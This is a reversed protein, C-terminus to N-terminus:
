RKASPASANARSPSTRRCATPLSACRTRRAHSGCPIVQARLPEPLRAVQASLTPVSTGGVLLVAGVCSLGGVARNDCPAPEQPLAKLGSAKRESAVCRALGCAGLPKQPLAKLSPLEREAAVCRALRCAGPEKQPLAKLGSAKRESAARRGRGFAAFGIRRRRWACRGVRSQLRRCAYVAVARVRQALVLTSRRVRAVANM